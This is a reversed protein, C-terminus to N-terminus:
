KKFYKKNLFIYWYYKKNKFIIKLILVDFYNLFMLFMIFFNFKKFLALRGILHSRKLVIIWQWTGFYIIWCTCPFYMALPFPLFDYIGKFVPSRSLQPWLFGSQELIDLQSNREISHMCAFLVALSIKWPVNIKYFYINVQSECAILTCNKIL